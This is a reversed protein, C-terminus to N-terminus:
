LKNNIERNNLSYAVLLCSAAISLRLSNTSIGLFYKGYVSAYNLFLISIQM